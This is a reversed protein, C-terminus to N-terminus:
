KNKRRRLGFACAVALLLASVGNSAKQGSGATCACGGGELSVSANAQPAAPTVPTPTPTGARELYDPVGNGTKDTSEDKDLINDGDSDTDLWNKKGDGDVDDSVKAAKADAVEQKTPIGDNDDDSDLADIKGDADTDIARFDPGAGVEAGDAIGDGDSDATTPDTGLRREVEDPIGDGDTDPNKRGQLYDVIMDGDKDTSEDKDLVSDGDSDTDLWNKKGDGDVDDGLKAAKADAIEKATPITDNDDDADLYDFKADGDTDLPKAAGMPGLEDKTLLGDNDDDSDLYDAKGDGDTDLPKTAGMPGLEDKTLIGDGDDDSDLADIKGDGDTDIPKKPDAGVEVGDKIGDGDTDPNAPNTGLTVEQADTLGDNDTDKLTLDDKPDKPDADARKEVGDSVGGNDTDAKLPDSFDTAADYVGNKNLDEEGDKLTDGDTDPNLPDLEGPDRVGNKNLDEVGDSLGDADSDSKTPDTEGADVIGDKNKDEVGDAIGDADSDPKRPDTEGADVVGNKNKDEVGDSIGDADSDALRPDTEGADVVGNKNADETGDPLGDGDSDAKRPDTEGADLAGNQNADEVGDPIGDGDTDTKLPDTMGSVELGDRIGDGDTDPNRPDTGLGVEQTNTLGDGDIDTSCRSPTGECLFGAELQCVDSCGDGPAKNADDCTEVTNDARKDIVGNGCLRAVNNLTCIDSPQGPPGCRDAAKDEDRLYLIAQSARSDGLVGFNAGASFPTPAENSLDNAGATGVAVHNAANGGTFVLESESMSLELSAVGGQEWYVLQFPYVGAEAFTARRTEMRTARNGQFESVTVGGIQLQYGDDSAVAFTKTGATRINILGTYRASFADRVVPVAPQHSKCIEGGAAQSWPFLVDIPYQAFNAGATDDYYDMLQSIGFFSTIGNNFTAPAAQAPAGVSQDLLAIALASTSVTGSAAAAGFQTCLGEAPKTFPTNSVRSAAPVSAVPAAHAVNAWATLVLSPTGIVCSLRLNSLRSKKRL